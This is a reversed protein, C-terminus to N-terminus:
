KVGFSSQSASNGPVLPRMLVAAELVAHDLMKPRMKRIQSRFKDLLFKRPPFRESQSTELWVFSHQFPYFRRAVFRSTEELNQYISNEESVVLCEVTCVTLLSANMRVGLNRM